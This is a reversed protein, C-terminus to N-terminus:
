SGLDKKLALWLILILKYIPYYQLDNNWLLELVQIKNNLVSYYQGSAQVHSWSSVQSSYNQFIRSNAMFM